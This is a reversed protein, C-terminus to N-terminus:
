EPMPHQAFFEPAQQAFAETLRARTVHPEEVIVRSDSLIDFFGIESGYRPVIQLHLHPISAGSFQGINYGVNYGGPRYVKDLVRLALTQLRHTAVVERDSLERVDLVHADPVVMVHGANYPYLNLTVFHGPCRFVILNTVAPDNRAVACLICDVPPRAGRAYAMKNAVIRHKELKVHGERALRIRHNAGESSGAREWATREPVPFGM